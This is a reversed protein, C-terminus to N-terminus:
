DRDSLIRQGGVLKSHRSWIPILKERYHQRIVLSYPSHEGEKQWQAWLQNNQTRLEGVIEVDRVIM